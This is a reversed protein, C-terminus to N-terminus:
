KCEVQGGLLLFEERAKGYVFCCHIDGCSNTAVIYSVVAFRSCSADCFHHLQVNDPKGFVVPFFCRQVAINNLLPMGELWSEWARM